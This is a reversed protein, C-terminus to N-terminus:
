KVVVRVESLDVVNIRLSDAFEAMPRGCGM